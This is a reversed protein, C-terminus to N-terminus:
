WKLWENNMMKMLIITIIIKVYSSKKKIELRKQVMQGTENQDAYSYLISSYPCTYFIQCLNRNTLNTPEQLIHDLQGHYRHGDNGATKKVM